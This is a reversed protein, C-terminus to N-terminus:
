ETTSKTKYLPMWVIRITESILISNQFLFEVVCSPKNNSWLYQLHRSKVYWEIIYKESVTWVIKMWETIAANKNWVNM